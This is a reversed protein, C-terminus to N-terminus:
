EETDLCIDLYLSREVEVQERVLKPSIFEMSSREPSFSKTSFSHSSFWRRKLKAIQFFPTVNKAGIIKLVDGQQFTLSFRGEAKGLQSQAFYNISFCLKKQL